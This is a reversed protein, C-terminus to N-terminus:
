KERFFLSCIQMSVIETEYLKGNKLIVVQSIEGHDM